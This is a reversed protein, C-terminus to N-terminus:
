NSASKKSVFENGKIYFRWPFYVAEEAYDINIRNTIVIEFEQELEQEAIYLKRGCLDNGNSLKTINMAKSLKGPGNSIGIFESKRCNLLDKRYRIQAMKELGAVPEVARILVAQPKDVEETVVNMCFYIGYIAFVYAYGPPGFMVSTRETRRNNYSHAAKDSPGMYAETEVIKGILKVGDVVHILYKGLLDV